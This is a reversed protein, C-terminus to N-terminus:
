GNRSTKEVTCGRPLSRSSLVSDIEIDTNNVLYEKQM